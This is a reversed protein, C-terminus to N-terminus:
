QKLKENLLKTAHSMVTQFNNLFLHGIAPYEYYTVNKNEKELAKALDRSWQVPVDKDAVGQHLQVPASVNELYNIASVSKWFEPNEEFSGYTDFIEQALDPWEEVVWRDFNKEYDSNIPALLIYVKVEKPAITMVNITVGGGMSHGLMGINDKDLFEYDAKQVANLLNMIDEVYGSRPRIENDPDFDSDAHNRYDSHIVVYGERALYDQERKLGQGNTYIKPDIYGHNVIVIPFARKGKPINMVGSISLGESTYTIHRRTYAENDFIVEGLKLDNGVFEKEMMAPISDPHPKIEAKENQEPKIQALLGSKAALEDVNEMIADGTQIAGKGDEQISWARYLFIAVASLIVISIISTKKNM